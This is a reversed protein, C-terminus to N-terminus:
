ETDASRLLAVKKFANALRRSNIPQQSKAGYFHYEQSGNELDVQRLKVKESIEDGSSFKSVYNKALMQMDVLSM